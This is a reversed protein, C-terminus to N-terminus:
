PKPEPPQCCRSQRSSCRSQLVAACRWDQRAAATASLLPHSWHSALFATSLTIRLMSQPPCAEAYTV